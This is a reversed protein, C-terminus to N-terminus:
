RGGSAPASPGREGTTFGSGLAEEWGPWPTSPFLARWRSSDLSTDRPRPEAGPVDNRRVAVINAEQVGLFLALRQGMELRSLRQPGGIHLVGSIEACALELLARAATALDLPTRWEDHFLTVPRGQRLAAAQEDFFSPRGSLSPGYLLSVRAVLGRPMWRVAEEAAAKTKGYVPLPSPPDDERYPAHEGDFVLDTSVLVLRAGSAAALEALAATGGANVRQAADPDRYCDAVKARAGAHLIADPRAQAFAEAVADRDGLDVAVLPFGLLDGRRSGSWATVGPRGRLQWLLYAGLQGSAGTILLRV